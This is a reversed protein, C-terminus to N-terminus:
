SVWVVPPKQFWGGETIIFWGIPFGGERTYVVGLKRGDDPVDFYRLTTVSQGPQLKGDLPFATPDRLPDYRHGEGDVVYVVTDKEGMAVRRARSTLRLSVMLSGGPGPPSPHRLADDITICWDDFCQPEHLHYKRPRVIASVAIVIAFYVAAGIALRRLIALSRRWSGFVALVLASLLTVATVLALLLFLPEFLNMLPM